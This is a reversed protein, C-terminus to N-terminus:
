KYDEYLIKFDENDLNRIIEKMDHNYYSIEKEMIDYGNRFYELIEEITEENFGFYDLNREFRERIEEETEFKTFENGYKNDSIEEFMKVFMDIKSLIPFKKLTEKDYERKRYAVVFSSSSSNTVFDLRIKM